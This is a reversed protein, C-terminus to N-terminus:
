TCSKTRSFRMVVVSHIAASSSTHLRPEDDGEGDLQLYNIPNNSGPVLSLVTDSAFPFAFADVPNYVLSVGGWWNVRQLQM